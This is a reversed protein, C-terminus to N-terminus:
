SSISVVKKRSTEYFAPVDERAIASLQGDVTLTFDTALLPLLTKMNGSAWAAGYAKIGKLNEENVFGETM